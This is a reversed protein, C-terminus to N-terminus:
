DEPNHHPGGAVPPCDLCGSPIDWRDGCRQCESAMAWDHGDVNCTEMYVPGGCRGCVVGLDTV